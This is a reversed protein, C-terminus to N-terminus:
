EEVVQAIVTEILEDTSIGAVEASLNRKIRHRLSALAVERVDSFAVNYRQDLLARAKAALILTQAGRPSAGFMVFQKVLRPSERETPQTALVIRAAYDRVYSAIPLERVVARALLLEGASAVQEMAQTQRATTALVIDRLEDPSPYGVSVKFFFRDLQVEPLPYTGEMELPNQTALVFFPEPLRHSTVGVTVQGEEMAELLASQTKPTARNIEDALVLGAFIPGEEFRLAKLGEPGIGFMNTGVIDTPMLDPTFQIRSFPIGLAQGLTRVLLTKGLGPTGEVLVHGGALLALVIHRVLDSQGILQKAVESEIRAALAQSEAVPDSAAAIGGHGRIHIPQDREDGVHRGGRLPDRM